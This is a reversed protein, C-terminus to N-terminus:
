FKVCAVTEGSLIFKTLQSIDLCEVGLQSECM